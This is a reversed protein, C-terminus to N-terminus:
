VTTRWKHMGMDKEMDVEMVEVMHTVMLTLSVISFLLLKSLPM